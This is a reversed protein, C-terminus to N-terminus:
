ASIEGGKQFETMRKWDFLVLSCHSFAGYQLDGSKNKVDSISDLEDCNRLRLSVAFHLPFL